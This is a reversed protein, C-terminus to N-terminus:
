IPLTSVFTKIVKKASYLSTSNKIETPALNWIHVADNIFTKESKHTIKSEKLQGSSRARTNTGDTNRELQVSRIPYNEMHLSKWIETLKVQANMQNVSLLKFKVLLSRTSIQDSVKTGNLARLLKNLCKQLSELEKNMPDTERWRVSGLLQLGYRLKSIFLGHSIQLLAAQGISSKLRRIFFLRQNLKSIIGGTGYIHENWKQNNEFTM